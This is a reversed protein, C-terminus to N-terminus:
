TFKNQFVNIIPLCGWFYYTTSIFGEIFVYHNKWVITQFGVSHIVCNLFFGAEDGYFVDIHGQKELELIDELCDQKYSYETQIEPKKQSTELLCWM